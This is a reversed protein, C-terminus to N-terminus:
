FLYFARNKNKCIVGVYMLKKFYRFIQSIWIMDCSGTRLYPLAVASGAKKLSFTKINKKSFFTHNNIRKKGRKQRYRAMSAYKQILIIFKSFDILQNGVISLPQPETPRISVRLHDSM